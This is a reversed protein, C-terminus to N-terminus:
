HWDRTRGSALTPPIAAHQIRPTWQCDSTTCFGNGGSARAPGVYGDITLFRTFFRHLRSAQQGICGLWRAVLSVANAAMRAAPHRSRDSRRLRRHDNRRGATGRGRFVEYRHEIRAGKARVTTTRLRLLDDFFAPLFYQVSVEAVVLLSGAEELERYSHGAARLLEVRGLEFWTLYNAHHVRGQGDTEQYRVRIEIEHTMTADAMSSNVSAWRPTVAIEILREDRVIQLEVDQEDKLSSLVRHLDDTGTVIRGGAAVIWDGPMLARARGRAAASASRRNRRGPRRAPGARSGTPASHAVITVTIGLSLRRVRGHALLEGVVWRATTAPVAFGLGQAMAIIATNIGVVRGRSDVLPGGSNGPNLPATHQVINEILRGQESRMARGLASVVGTSVTSRFGFPNGM